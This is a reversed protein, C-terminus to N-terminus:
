KLSAEVKQAVDATLWAKWVEPHEKLFAQAVERPATHNESMTALAKNLPEIPFQVKTFFEAIQPYQKQFPASVGISLKSPLSRTPKPNPNDADTLTKWAEADFPPEELQILKFRGLLPTPSWYYFLVPKGRRISSTIEADLAIRNPPQQDLGQGIAELDLIAVVAETAQDANIVTMFMRQFKGVVLLVAEDGLVLAPARQAIAVVSAAPEVVNAQRVVAFEIVVVGLAACERGDVEIAGPQRRVREGDAALLMALLAQQEAVVLVVVLTAQFDVGDALLSLREVTAIIGVAGVAIEVVNGVGAMALAAVLVVREVPQDADSVGAIVQRFAEGVVRCAIQQHLIARARRLNQTISQEHLTISM